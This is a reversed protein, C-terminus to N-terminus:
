TSQPLSHFFKILYTVKIRFNQKMTQKNQVLEPTSILSNKHANTVPILRQEHSMDEYRDYETYEATLLSKWM